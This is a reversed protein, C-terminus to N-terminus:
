ARKTRQTMVPELLSLLRREMCLLLQDRSHCSRRQPLEDAVKALNQSSATGQRNQDGDFPVMPRDALRAGDRFRCPCRLDVGHYWRRHLAIDLSHPGRPEDATERNRMRDLEPATLYKGDACLILRFRALGGHGALGSLGFKGTRPAAIRDAVPFRAMIIPALAGPIAISLLVCM